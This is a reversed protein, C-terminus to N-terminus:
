RQFFTTENTHMKMHLAYLPLCIGKTTRELTAPRGGPACPRSCVRTRHALRIDSPGAFVRLQGGTPRPTDALLPPVSSYVRPVSLSM